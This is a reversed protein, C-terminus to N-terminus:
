NTAKALYRADILDDVAAKVDTSPRCCAPTRFRSAPPSSRDGRQPEGIVSHTLETRTELQRDVVAQPLKTFGAFTQKLEQPNALSWRRAEEYVALVRTVLEPNKKAFEERVNLIGWTNAEPKRYFLM